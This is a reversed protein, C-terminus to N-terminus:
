CTRTHARVSVEDGNVFLHWETTALFEMQQVETKTSWDFSYHGQWVHTTEDTSVQFERDFYVNIRTGPLEDRDIQTRARV